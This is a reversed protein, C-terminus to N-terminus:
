GPSGAAPREAMRSGRVARSTEAAPPPATAPTALSAYGTSDTPPKAPPSTFAATSAVSACGASTRGHLPPRPTAENPMSGDTVDVPATGEGRTRADVTTVATGEGRTRADATASAAPTVAACTASDVRVPLKRLTPSLQRSLRPPLLGGAPLDAPMGTAAPETAVAPHEAPASCAAFSGDRVDAAAPWASDTHRESTHLAWPQQQQQQEPQPLQQQLPQHQQQWQYTRDSSRSERIRVRVSRDECRVALSLEAGPGWPFVLLRREGPRTLQPVVHSSSSASSSASSASSSASSASSNTTTTTTATSTSAATSSASAAASASSPAVATAAASSAAAASSSSSSAAAESRGAERRGISLRGVDGVPPDGLPAPTPCPAASLCAETGHLSSMDYVVMRGRGRVLICQLRSVYSETAECIVLSCRPHRGLTLCAGARVGEVWTGDDIQVSLSSHVRNLPAGGLAHQISLTLEDILEDLRDHGLFELYMKRQDLAEAEDVAIHAAAQSSLGKSICLASPGAVHGDLNGESFKQVFAHVYEPVQKTPSVETSMAIERALCHHTGLELACRRHAGIRKKVLRRASPSLSLSRYDLARAPPRARIFLTPLRTILSSPCLCASRLFVLRKPPPFVGARARAAAFTAGLCLTM